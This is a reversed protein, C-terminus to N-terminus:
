ISLGLFHESPQRLSDNTWIVPSTGQVSRKGRNQLSHVRGVPGIKQLVEFRPPSICPNDAHVSVVDGGVKDSDEIRFDNIGQSLRPDLPDCVVSSAVILDVYGGAYGLTLQNGNDRDALMIKTRNPILTDFVGPVTSSAVAVVASYRIM